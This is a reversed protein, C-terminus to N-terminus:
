QWPTNDIVGSELQNERELSVEAISSLVMLFNAGDGVGVFVFAPALAKGKARRMLRQLCLQRRLPKDVLLCVGVALFQRRLHLAPPHLFRGCRAILRGHAILAEPPRNRRDIVM